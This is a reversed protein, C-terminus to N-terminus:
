EEEGILKLMQAGRAGKTILIKDSYSEAMRLVKRRSIGLEKAVQNSSMGNPVMSLLDLLENKGGKVKVETLEPKYLSDGFDGMQISLELKPYMGAARFEREITVKAKSPDDEAETSQLYLASETWGHLTTSGLMRQGGRSSTGSKNWHHVVMVATQYTNKINLLWQLVPQLDKAHNVDGDFMLYLPDFIVLVPRIQKVAEELQLKHMPDNFNYGYNNVFYIPLNPPWDVTVKNGKVRAEGGLRKSAIMKELRDKMIWEANENQVILVPGQEEVEYSGWLPVGSAVSVALDLTITSKYTKPEGAVIGHSKRMWLDKVLWGPQSKNSSMIGEYSVLPLPPVESVEETSEPEGRQLREYVKTIETRLRLVEDKRGRYKNWSSLQIMQIIDELPIQAQVLESEIYWLMDSRHGPEIREPPYQLLRSAKAPIKSRYQSLLEVLTKDHSTTLTQDIQAPFKLAEVNYSSNESWLVQGPSVPTYKYNPTGPIRLVQTIDWGSKDAGVAYTLNKNLKEFVEPALSEDLFWLAQYRGESSAWAVTPKVPLTKPDVPDLDAFMVKMPKAQETLRKKEFVTPAWYADKGTAETKLWHKIRSKDAPWSFSYEKWRGHKDKTSLFVNGKVGQHDWTKFCVDM